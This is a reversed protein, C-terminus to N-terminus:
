RSGGTIIAAYLLRDVFVGLTCPLILVVVELFCFPFTNAFYCLQGFLFPKAKSALCANTSRLFFFSFLFSVVTTRM